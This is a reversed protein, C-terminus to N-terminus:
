CGIITLKFDSALFNNIGTFVAISGEQSDLNQFSAESKLTLTNDLAGGLFFVGGQLGCKCSQVDSKIGVEIEVNKLTELYALGGSGATSVM